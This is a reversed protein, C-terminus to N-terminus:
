GNNLRIDDLIEKAGNALLKRAVRRGLAEAGALTSSTGRADLRLSGDISGVMADLVMRGEEVRAWAGIPIQCGGELMRLLAREALAAAHTEAHDLVRVYRATAPDNARIEIGLAGQGVAPLILDAPIIQAIRDSWGLRKVGACALMMGDWKAADHKKMRSNLNGRIEVIELDPRLHRLQSRRRLSGTAIVAGEPLEDISRWRKSILVDRVDERKTIAAIVLGDPTATPLDKLSHVAIDCTGDLLAREIEKTFLGKDGIKSLAQDLIKDGTTKIIKLEVTLSRFRKELVAKVHEAQWLALESGRTGIVLRHNM